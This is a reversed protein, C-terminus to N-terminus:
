LREEIAKKRALHGGGHRHMVINFILESIVLLASIIVLGLAIRFVLNNTSSIIQTLLSTVIVGVPKLQPTTNFQAAAIGPVARLFFASVALTIATMVLVKGLGWSRRGSQSLLGVLVLLVLSIGLGLWPARTLWFNALHVNEVQKKDTPGIVIPKNLQSIMEPELNFGQASAASVLDAFSVSPAPKDERLFQDLGEVIYTIKGRVYAATIVKSFQAKIIEADAPSAETTFANPVETAITQYTGAAEASALIVKPNLIHDNVVYSFIATSLTFTAITGLIGAFFKKM